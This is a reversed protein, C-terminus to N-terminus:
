PPLPQCCSSSTQTETPLGPTLGLSGSFTQEPLSSGLVEWNCPCPLPHGPAPTEGSGPMTGRGGSGVGSKSPIPFIGREEWGPGFAFGGQSEQCLAAMWRSGPHHSLYTQSPFTTENKSQRETVGATRGRGWYAMEHCTRTHHLMSYQSKLTVTPM